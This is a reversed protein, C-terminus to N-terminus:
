KYEHNPVLVHAGLVGPVGIMSGALMARDLAGPMMGVVGGVAAGRARSDMRDLNEALEVVRGKVQVEFRIKGGTAVALGKGLAKRFRGFLGTSGAKNGIAGPKTARWSRQGARIGDNGANIMKGGMFRGTEMMDRGASRYAAGRVAMGSGGGGYRNMIARDGALAGLGSAATGAAVAAGKMSKFDDVSNAESGDERYWKGDPGRMVAFLKADVKAELAVLKNKIQEKM